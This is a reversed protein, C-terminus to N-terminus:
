GAEKMPLKRALDTIADIKVALSTRQVIEADTVLYVDLFREPRCGTRLFNRTGSAVPHPSKASLPAARPVSRAHGGRIGM